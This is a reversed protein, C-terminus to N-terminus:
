SAGGTFGPAPVAPADDDVDPEDDGEGFGDDDEDDPEDKGPVPDEVAGVFRGFEMLQLLSGAAVTASAAHEPGGFYSLWKEDLDGETLQNESAYERIVELLGNRQESPSNGLPLEAQAGHRSTRQEYARTVRWAVDDADHSDRVPELRLFDYQVHRKYGKATQREGYGVPVMLGVVAITGPPRGAVLDAYVKENVTHTLGSGEGPSTVLKAETM